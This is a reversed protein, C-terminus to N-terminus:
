HKGHTAKGAIVVLKVVKVKVIVVVVVVVLVIVLDHSKENELCYLKSIALPCHYETASFVVNEVMASYTVLTFKHWLWLAYCLGSLHLM